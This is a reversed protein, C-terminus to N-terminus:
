TDRSLPNQETAALDGQAMRRNIRSTSSLEPFESDLIINESVRPSSRRERM